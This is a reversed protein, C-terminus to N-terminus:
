GGRNSGWLWRDFRGQQLSVIPIHPPSGLIGDMSGQEPTTRYPIDQLWGAPPSQGVSPIRASQLMECSGDQSFWLPRIISGSRSTLDHVFVGLQGFDSGRRSKLHVLDRNLEESHVQQAWGQFRLSAKTRLSGVECEQAM